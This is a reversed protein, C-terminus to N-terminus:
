GSRKSKRRNDHWSKEEGPKKKRWQQHEGDRQRKDMATNLRSGQNLSRRTWLLAGTDGQM